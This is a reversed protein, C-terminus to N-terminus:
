LNGEKNKPEDKELTGKGKGGGLGIVRVLIAEKEIKVGGASGGSTRVIATAMPQDTPLPDSTPYAASSWQTILADLADVADASAENPQVLSEKEKVGTSLQYPLPKIRRDVAIGDRATVTEGPGVKAFYRSRAPGVAQTEPHLVVHELTWPSKNILTLSLGNGELVIGGPLEREGEEAVVVTQWPHARVGHIAMAQRDIDIAGNDIFPEVVRLTDIPRQATLDLTTPDALYFARLTTSVGRTAGGGVDLLTLNRARGRFGKGLKGLGIVMAFLALALLPTARMVFLPRGVKRARGFAVPGVLIAYLAVLIAAIGLAPRFGHNPDLFKLVRDDDYWRLGTGAPLTVLSARRGRARQWLGYIAKPSKPDFSRAWPDRRLLWVEGIGYRAFDGDDGEKTVDGRQLTGGNFTLTSSASASTLHVEGGLLSQLNKGRLDEERTVSVALLGGSLVWQALADYPRGSLRALIDSPVVVVAAGTWGGSVDPLIPDNTESAIQVTSVQATAAGVWAPAPPPPPAHMGKGPGHLPGFPTPTPGFEEEGSGPAPVDVLKMGRADKGQIEVITAVGELPRTPGLAHSAVEGDAPTRLTVSPYRGANLFFPILVRQGRDGAALSVPVRVTGAPDGHHDSSPDVDVEGRWASGDSVLTVVAENWGVVWPADKGQVPQVDVTPTARALAPMAFAVFAALSALLRRM